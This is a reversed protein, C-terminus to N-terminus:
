FRSPKDLLTEATKGSDDLPELDTVRVEVSIARLFAGAAVMWVVLAGIGLAQTWPLLDSYESLVGLGLATAGVGAILTFAAQARARAKEPAKVLEPYYTEVVQKQVTPELTKGIPVGVRTM